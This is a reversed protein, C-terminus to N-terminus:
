PKCRTIEARVTNIRSVSTALRLWTDEDIEKHELFDAGIVAVVLSEHDLSQLADRASVWRRPKHHHKEGVRDPMVDRFSLGISELIADPSCGAFCHILVRGDSCEKISLSPSRDDHAPCRALAKSDSVVNVGDLRELLSLFNM